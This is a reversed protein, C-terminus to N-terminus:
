DRSSDWDGLFFGDDFHVWSAKYSRDAHGNGDDDANFALVYRLFREM